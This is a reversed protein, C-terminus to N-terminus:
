KKQMCANEHKETEKWAEGGLMDDQYLDRVTDDGRASPVRPEKCRKQKESDKLQAVAYELAHSRSAFTLKEVKEDIWEVLDERMTVQLRKRPMNSM